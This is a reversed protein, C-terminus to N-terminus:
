VLIKGPVSPPKYLEFTRFLGQVQGYDPYTGFMSFVHRALWVDTIWPDSRLFLPDKSWRRFVPHARLLRIM